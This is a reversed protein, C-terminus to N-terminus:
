FSNGSVCVLSVWDKEQARKLIRFGYREAAEAVDSERDAIIGSMIFTGGDALMKDAYPIISILVDAVINATIIDYKKRMLRSRVRDDTVIDGSFIDLASEPIDNLAANAYTTTVAEPDIDVGTVHSAGLLLALVSLIGSGCGLDLMESGSKVYKELQEICLRTTEHTGTGFSMGPNINFVIRDTETSLEEWVPKILIKEGVETIHYYKKWNEAWDESKVKETSIYLTGYKKDNDSKKLEAAASKIASITEEGSKDNDVYVIIKTEGSFKRFLSEDVGAWYKKNEEVFQLFENEDETEFASIGCNLLMGMVAESGASTTYVTVKIYDM